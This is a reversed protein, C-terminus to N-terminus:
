FGLKQRNKPEKSGGKPEQSLTWILKRIHVRECSGFPPWFLGFIRRFRPKLAAELGLSLTTEV